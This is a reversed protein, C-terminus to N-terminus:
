KVNISTLPHKHGPIAEDNDFHMWVIIEMINM